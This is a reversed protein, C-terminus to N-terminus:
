RTARRWRSGGARLHVRDSSEFEFVSGDVRRVYAVPTEEVVTVVVPLGDVTDNIVGATAVDETPYARAVDGHAIGIVETKPHLRDDDFQGGIGVRASSEYGAYPNLTYDRAGSGTTITGSEPPPRLVLTNPHDARWKGLTTLTSPVLDLTDGTREGNIATALIQSWLSETAEDYMVLDNRWLLGSVGFDTVTGDVRRSASVASGCLPCYTVLLPGDFDDNVIEHWNLVRLPYARAEGDRVIGVVEDDDRLRPEVEIVQGFENAEATVGDWDIGFEPDIIAPIADKSAGRQMASRPVPLELAGYGGSALDGNATSPTFADDRFRGLCGALLGALGAASVRLYRRRRM